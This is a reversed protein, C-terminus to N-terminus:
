RKGQACLFSDATWRRFHCNYCSITEESIREEEVDPQFGPCKKATAATGSWDKEGKEKSLWSARMEEYDSIQNKSCTEWITRGDDTKVSHVLLVAKGELLIPKVMNGLCVIESDALVKGELSRVQDIDPHTCLDQVKILNDPANIKLKGKFRGDNNSLRLGVGALAGIVGQGTGGHESLHIKLREALSYAEEKSLVERKAKYGFDILSKQELLDDIVAVCLGPDAEAESERRLFDSAYDILQQLYERDIEAQFCMSSNHSTYPINPDLLFQHRTIQSCKGWGKEQITKAILSALEGTGRSDISDTDDICVLIKM